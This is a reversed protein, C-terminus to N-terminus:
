CKGATINRAKRNRADRMKLITMVVALGIYPLIYEVINGEGSASVSCGGGGGGGGVIAAAGGGAFLFFATFHTTKFSLAHL